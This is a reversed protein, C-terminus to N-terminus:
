RDMKSKNKIEKYFQDLLLPKEELIGQIISTKVKSGEKKVGRMSICLHEAEISIVLGKPQLNKMLVNAIGSTLKEQTQLRKSFIEVLRAFKSLGLIRGNPIYGFHVRGFFPVLHHECLSYFNIDSVTILGDYDKSEFTKFISKPDKNYGSLIEEYMRYVRQPTERLGERSSDEDYITLLQSVFEKILKQSSKKNQIKVKKKGM